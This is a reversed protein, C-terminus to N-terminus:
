MQELRSNIEAIEAQSHASMRGHWIYYAIATLRPLLQQRLAPESDIHESWLNVQGGYYVNAEIPALQMIDGLSCFGAWNTGVAGSGTASDLYFHPAQSLILKGPHKPAPTHAQWHCLMADANLWPAAEEWAIPTKGLQKLLSGLRKYFSSLIQARTRGAAAPSQQWVGAPIEDGGVHIYAAPFLEALEGYVREIFEWTAPLCPNLCNDSYGQVSHYSSTDGAESLQPHLAVIAARAHAPLSIEPVIQVDHDSAYSVLERIEAQSYYGGYRQYGSSFAPALPLGHGRWGGIRTLAPYAKIELRWGEDNSLHLHLTNFGLYAILKLLRKLTDLAFFNRSVDLMFARYALRASGTQAWVPEAIGPAPLLKQGTQRRAQQQSVLQEARTFFIGAPAYSAPWPGKGAFDFVLEHQVSAPLNPLALVHYAGIQRLLKAGTLKSPTLALSCHLLLGTQDSTSTNNLVLMGKSENARFSFDHGIM